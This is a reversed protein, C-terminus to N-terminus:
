LPPISLIRRCYFCLLSLSPREGVLIYYISLIIIHNICKCFCDKKRVQVFITDTLTKLSDIQAFLAKCYYPVHILTSKLPYQSTMFSLFIKTVWSGTGPSQLWCFSTAVQQGAHTVTILMKYREIFVVNEREKNERFIRSM